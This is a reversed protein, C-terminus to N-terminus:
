DSTRKSMGCYALKKEPSPTTLPGASGKDGVRREACECTGGV